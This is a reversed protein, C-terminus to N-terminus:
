ASFCYTLNLSHCSCALSTRGVKILEAESTVCLKMDGFPCKRVGRVAVMPSTLSDGYNRELFRKYSMDDPRIEAFQRTNDSFLLNRLM